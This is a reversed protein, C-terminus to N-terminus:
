FFLLPHRWGRTAKPRCPTKTKPTEPNITLAPKSADDLFAGDVTDWRQKLLRGEDSKLVNEEEELHLPLFSQTMSMKHFLASPTTPSTSKSGDKLPQCGLFVRIRRTKIPLTLFQGL